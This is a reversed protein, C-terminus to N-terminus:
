KPLNFYFQAGSLNPSKAHVSGGHKEIIKRVISLGVGTGEFEHNSHLRHFVQFLNKAHENDFGVGNDSVCFEFYDAHDFVSIMVEPKDTKTSYKCANDILNLFVQKMMGYDARVAPLDPIIFKPSYNKTALLESIVTNILKNMDIEVRVVEKRSTRSFLLLDDILSSMKISNKIVVSLLRQGEEDLNQHYDEELIQSFGTIARLPARLDHSISYAFSELDANIEKLENTRNLVKQELERNLTILQHHVERKESIDRGELIIYALDGNSNRMSRLLLEITLTNQGIGIIETEYRILKGKKVSQIAQKLQNSSAANHIFWPTQWIKKAQVSSLNIGGFFLATDNAQMLEGAPNLLCIFQLNQQFIAEFRLESDLLAAKLKGKHEFPQYIGFFDTIEELKNFNAYGLMRVSKDKFESKECQIDLTLDIRNKVPSLESFCAAIKKLSNSDYLNSIHLKTDREDLRIFHQKYSSRSWLLEQKKLDLQWSGYDGLDEIQNQAKTLTIPSIRTKSLLDIM